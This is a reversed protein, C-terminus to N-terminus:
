RGARCAPRPACGRSLPQAPVPLATRRSSARRLGTCSRVRVRGEEEEGASAGRRVGQRAGPFRPAHLGAHERDVRPRADGAGRAPRGLVAARALRVFPAAHAPARAAVPGAQMAWAALRRQITRASLRRGRAGVFLADDRIGRRRARTAGALRSRPARRPAWPSSASRRARAGSACRARRRSRRPRCRAGRARVPALGSSYALEFLARDRLALSRRGDIALLHVAEDPSLASPLRKPSKPAKLGACPDRELAAIASARLFRYFARWSSLMRALSRGSLGRGHLTALTRAIQARNLGTLPTDGAAHSRACTACTPTARIRRGPPSTRPSLRSRPPTRRVSPGSRTRTRRRRSPDRCRQADPRRCSARRPSARSSPSGPRTCRAWAPIFAIPIPAASRWSASRTPPACRCSARVVAACRRGRVVRAVRLRGGARLLAPGAPRRLACERVVHRRARAPVVARARTGVAAGGGAARRLGGEPQPVAGRAHDRPRAGRLARADLSAGERQDPRERHRLDRAGPVEGRARANKERLTVIQREAIPIAHGGHPHPVFIEAIVDAYDEFFEPNQKLYEAVAAADMREHGANSTEPQERVSGLGGCANMGAM